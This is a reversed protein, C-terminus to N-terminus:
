FMQQTVNSVMCGSYDLAQFLVTFGEARGPVFFTFSANGSEDATSIGFFHPNALDLTMSGCGPIETEGGQLAFFFFVREGPSAGEIEWTNNQGAVGPTPGSLM